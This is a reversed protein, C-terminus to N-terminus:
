DITIWWNRYMYHPLQALRIQEIREQIREERRCNHQLFFKRLVKPSAKQLDPLTPWRLLLKGVMACAPDDFWRLIQPFVQKLWTM